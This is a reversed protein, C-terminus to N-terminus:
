QRLTFTLLTVSSPRFDVSDGVFPSFRSFWRHLTFILQIVSSHHFDVLGNVFSSFNLRFPYFADGLWQRLTFISELPTLVLGSDVVGPLFLESDDGFPWVLAGWSIGSLGFPSFRYVSPFDIFAERKERWKKERWVAPSTVGGLLLSLSSSFESPVYSLHLHLVLPCTLLAYTLGERKVEQTM